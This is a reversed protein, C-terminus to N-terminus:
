CQYQNVWCLDTFRFISAIAPVGELDCKRGSGTQGKTHMNFNLDLYARFQVLETREAAWRWPGTLYQKSGNPIYWKHTPIKPIPFNSQHTTYRFISAVEKLRLFHLWAPGESFLRDLQAEPGASAASDWPSPAM